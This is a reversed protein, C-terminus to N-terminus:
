PFRSIWSNLFIRDRGTLLLSNVSRTVMKKIKYRHHPIKSHFLFPFKQTRLKTNILKGKGNQVGRSAIWIEQKLVIQCFAIPQECLYHGLAEPEIESNFLIQPTLIAGGAPVFVKVHVRYRKKELLDKLIAFWISEGDDTPVM